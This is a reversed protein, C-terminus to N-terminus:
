RASGRQALSGQRNVAGLCQMGCCNTCRRAVDCDCLLEARRRHSSAGRVPQSAIRPPAERHRRGVARRCLLCPARGGMFIAPCAHRPRKNRPLAAAHQLIRAHRPSVSRAMPAASACVGHPCPTHGGMGGLLGVAAGRGVHHRYRRPPSPSLCMTSDRAHQAPQPYQISAARMHAIPAHGKHGRRRGRTAMFECWPAVWPARAVGGGGICAHVSPTRARAFRSPLCMRQPHQACAATTSMATGITAGWARRARHRAPVSARRRNLCRKHVTPSAICLSYKGSRVLLQVQTTAAM